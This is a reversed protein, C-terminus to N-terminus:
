HGMASHAVRSAHFSGTSPLGAQLGSAPTRRQACQWAGRSPLHGPAELSVRRDTCAWGVLSQAGPRHRRGREGAWARPAGGLGVVALRTLVIWARSPGHCRSHPRRGPAGGGGQKLRLHGAVHRPAAPTGPCTTRPVTAPGMRPTMARQASPRRQHRQAGHVADPAGRAHAPSRVGPWRGKRPAQGEHPLSRRWLVSLRGVSM